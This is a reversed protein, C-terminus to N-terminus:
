GKPQPNKKNVRGVSDHSLPRSFVPTKELIGGVSSPTIAGLKGLPAFPSVGNGRQYSVRPGAGSFDQVETRSKETVTRGGSDLPFYKKIALRSSGGSQM